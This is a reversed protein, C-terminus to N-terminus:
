ADIECKGEKFDYGEAAAAVDDSHDQIRMTLFLAGPISAVLLAFCIILETM